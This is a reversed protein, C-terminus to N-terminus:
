SGSLRSRVHRPREQQAAEACGCRAERERGHGGIRRRRQQQMAARDVRAIRRLRLDLGHEGDAPPDGIDAVLRAGAHAGRFAGADHVERALRHERAERIGVGVEGVDALALEAEIERADLADLRHLLPEGLASRRVPRRPDDARVPDFRLPLRGHERRPLIEVGDNAVAGHDQLAHVPVGDDHVRLRELDGADRPRRGVGLAALDQPIRRGALRRADQDVVRHIEDPFVDRGFRVLRQRAM